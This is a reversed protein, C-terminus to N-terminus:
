VTVKDPHQMQNPSIKQTRPNAFTEEASAAARVASDLFFGAPTAPQQSSAKFCGRM